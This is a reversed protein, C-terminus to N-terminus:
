LIQTKVVELQAHSFACVLNSRTPSFSGLGLTMIELDQVVLGFIDNSFM